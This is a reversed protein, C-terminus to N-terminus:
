STLVCRCSVTLPWRKDSNTQRRAGILKCVHPSFASWDALMVPPMVGTVCSRRRFCDSKWAFSMQGIGRLISVLLSQSASQMSVQYASDGGGQVVTFLLFSNICISIM